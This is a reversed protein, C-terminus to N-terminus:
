ARRTETGDYPLEKWPFISPRSYAEDEIRPFRLVEHIETELSWINVSVFRSAVVPLTIGTIFKILETTAIGAMVDHFARFGGVESAQGDETRTFKDFEVYEDYSAMNGRLRAEFSAYSATDRPVFLPGVWGEIQNISRLLLWPVNQTMSYTHVAELLEPDHATMVVCIVEPQPERQTETLIAKRDLELVETAHAAAAENGEQTPLYSLSGIGAEALSRCLTTTLYGNGIVAVRSDLLKAQHKAGGENTFSSFLNIQDAYREQDEQSLGAPDAEEILSKSELHDLLQDAIDRSLNMAEIEDLLDGRTRTGNLFPLLAGFCRMVEEKKLKISWSEGGGGRIGWTKEDIPYLTLYKKLRPKEIM